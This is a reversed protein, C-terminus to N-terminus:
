KVLEKYANIFKLLDISVGDNILCSKFANLAKIVNYQEDSSSM